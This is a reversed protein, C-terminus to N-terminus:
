CIIMSGELLPGIEMLCIFWLVDLCYDSIGDVYILMIVNCSWCSLEILCLCSWVLIRSFVPHSM